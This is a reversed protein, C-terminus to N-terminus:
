SRPRLPGKANHPPPGGLVVRVQRRRQLRDALREPIECLLHDFRKWAIRLSAGSQAWSRAQRCRLYHM